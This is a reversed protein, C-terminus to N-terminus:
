YAVYLGSGAGITNACIHLHITDPNLVTPENRSLHPIRGHIDRAAPPYQTYRAICCMTRCIERDSSFTRVSLLTTWRAIPTPSCIKKLALSPGQYRQLMPGTLESNIM